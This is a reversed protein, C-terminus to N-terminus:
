KSKFPIIYDAGLVSIGDVVRRGKLMFDYFYCIGVFVESSSLLVSVILTIDDSVLHDFGWVDLYDQLKYAIGYPDVAKLFGSLLFTAGLTIRLTWYFIKHLIM